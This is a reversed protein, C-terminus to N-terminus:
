RVQEFFAILKPSFARKDLRLKPKLQLAARFDSEAEALSMEPNRSLLARTYRVCGRLLYAEAVPQAAVLSTLQKESADLNGGAYARYAGELVPRPNIAPQATETKVIVPPPEAPKKALEATLAADLKAVQASINKASDDNLDRALTDADHLARDAFAAVRANTKADVLRRRYSQLAIQADVLDKSEVKVPPPQVPPPQTQTPVVLDIKDVVVPPPTKKKPPPPILAAEAKKKKAEDAAAVFLERAEGAADAARQYARVDTGASQFQTMADQLKRQAARYSDSRDGGATLAASQSSIARTLAANAAKKPGATASEANRQKETQARAVWDKLKSYYDTRAIAGQDESIKWERLAGDTDGTNFKAIGLFFHPVYVFIENRGKATTTENPMVAISKQLADIAVAYSRNNVSTVGRNYADYWQEPKTAAILVVALAAIAIRRM